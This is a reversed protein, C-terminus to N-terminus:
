TPVGADLEIDMESRPSTWSCEGSLRPHHRFPREDGLNLRFCAAIGSCGIPLAAHLYEIM